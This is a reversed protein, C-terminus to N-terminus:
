AHVEERRETTKRIQSSLESWLTGYLELFPKTQRLALADQDAGFPVEHRSFVTGPRASLIYIEDCLTIAEALDHTVLIVTSSLDKILRLVDAHIAVRTPEDLASFPEDLLLTAPRPCIAALFAIRRRMGGSLEYPYSDAFDRLGVMELLEQVREAVEKKPARHFRYFLAVNEAATLWPLLTNNQFVMLRPHTGPPPEPWRISGESPTRIGALMHLLTSKGCGSPGVIGVSRGRPITMSLNEIAKVGGPYTFSVGDVVLPDAGPDSTTRAPLDPSILPVAPHTSSM